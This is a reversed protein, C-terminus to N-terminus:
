AERSGSEQDEGELPELAPPLDALVILDPESLKRYLFIFVDRAVAAVPVIIIVGIIGWMSGGVVLLVMIVAPNMNVARGQIRPVLFSNELQQVVLSIAAVWVLKEPETALVVIAAIFFTLWPGLIPVLELVGAIVGLALAQQVDVFWYAVGSAVGVIVGLILQGRVYSSLVRDVIGVAERVDDQLRKPWIGYFWNMARREDKLVYFLWLPIILFGLVFTVFRSVTGITSTVFTQAASSLASSLEDLNAEIQTKVEEPVETEYRQVWYDSEEKIDSWYQPLSEILEFTQNLLRPIISMGLAVLVATGVLYVLLIAIIRRAEPHRRLGPIALEIRRVLPLLLYALVAGVAFPFLSGRVSWLIYAIAVIAFLVLITRYQRKPDGEAIPEM